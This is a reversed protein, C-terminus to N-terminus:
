LARADRKESPVRLTISPRDRDTLVVQCGLRSRDHLQAAVDLLDLEQEGVPRAREFHPPELIM